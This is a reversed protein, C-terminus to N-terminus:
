LLFDRFHFYFPAFFGSSYPSCITFRYKLYYYYYYIISAPMCGTLMRVNIKCEVAPLLLILTYTQAQFSYMLM